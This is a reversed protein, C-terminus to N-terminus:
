YSLSPLANFDAIPKALHSHSTRHPTAARQARLESVHWAPVWPRSSTSRPRIRTTIKNGRTAVALRLSPVSPTPRIMSPRQGIAAKRSHGGGSDHQWSTVKRTAIRAEWSQMSLPMTPNELHHLLPMSVQGQRAASRMTTSYGRDFSSRWSLQVKPGRAEALLSSRARAMELAQAVRQEHRKGLPVRPVPSPLIVLRAERLEHEERQLQSRCRRKAAHARQEKTKLPLSSLPSTMLWKDLDVISISNRVGHQALQAENLVDYFTLAALAKVEDEWLDADFLSRLHDHFEEMSLACDQQRAHSFTEGGTDWARMLDVTGLHCRELMQALLTRIVGPGSKPVWLVDKLEPPHTTDSVPDYQEKPELASLKPRWRNDLSHRRSRVFEFFDDFNISGKNSADLCRFAAEVVAQRGEFEEYDFKHRLTRDFEMYDICLRGDADHDFVKILNIVAAGSRSFLMKLEQLLTTAKRARVRWKGTDVWPIASIDRVHQDYMRSLQALQTKTQGDAEVSEEGITDLFDKWTCTGDINKDLQHFLEHAVQGFGMSTALAEFELANLNGSHDKDFALFQKRMEDVGHFEQACRLSWRWYDNVGIVGDRDHDAATFWSLILEEKFDKRLRRPMMSYFNKFSLFRENPAHYEAFRTMDRKVDISVRRPAMAPADPDTEGSAACPM